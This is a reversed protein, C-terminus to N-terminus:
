SFVCVCVCVCVCVRESELFTSNPEIITVDYLLGTFRALNCGGYRHLYTFVMLIVAVESGQETWGSFPLM